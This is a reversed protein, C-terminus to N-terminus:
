GAVTTRKLSSVRGMAGGGSKVAHFVSDMERRDVWDKLPREAGFGGGDGGEGQPSLPRPTLFGARRWPFSRWAVFRGMLLM